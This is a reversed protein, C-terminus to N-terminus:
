LFPVQSKVSNGLPLRVTPHLHSYITKRSNQEGCGRSLALMCCYPFLKILECAILFLFRQAAHSEAGPSCGFGGDLNKCSVFYKVAKDVNIKDMSHLLALSCIAIYSFRTDVEGWTVQFPDMKMRYCNSVKDIDLIHMKDFLALVQIGSLTYLLHPDHGIDLTMHELAVYIKEVSFIYNVHKEVELEGMRQGNKVAGLRGYPAWQESKSVGLFLRLAASLPFSRANISESYIHYRLWARALEEERNGMVAPSRREGLRGEGEAPRELWQRPNEPPWGVKKSTQDLDGTGRPDGPTM